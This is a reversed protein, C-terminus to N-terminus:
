DGETYKELCALVTDAIIRGSTVPAVKGPLSLAWIINMGLEEAATIDVGGPKSALDIILGHKGIAELEGKGLVKHPVTNFIMDFKQESLVQALKQTVAVDYGYARIWALDSAKRASVTVRAGLSDLLRALVKGIRGYGIVLAKSENITTPTEHMAIEIAGEATPVANAIAFEDREYYDFVSIGYAECLSVAKKPLKGGCLLMTGNNSMMTCLKEITLKCGDALPMSIHEGDSSVPLPLIVADSGFVAEEATKCVKGCDSVTGDALNHLLEHLGASSSSCCLSDVVSVHTGANTSPTDNKDFGYLSVDYGAARFESAAILQRADGGIVALKYEHNKKM